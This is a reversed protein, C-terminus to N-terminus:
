SRVVPVSQSFSELVQESKRRIQRFVEHSVYNADGRQRLSVRLLIQSRFQSTGASLLPYLHIVDDLIAVAFRLANNTLHRAPSFFQEAIRSISDSVIVCFGVSSVFGTARFNAAAITQNAHCPLVILAVPRM